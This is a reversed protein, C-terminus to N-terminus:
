DHSPNASVKKIAEQVAKKIAKGYASDDATAKAYLTGM